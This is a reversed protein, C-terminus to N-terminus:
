IFNIVLKIIAAKKLIKLNSMNIMLKFYLHWGSHDINDGNNIHDEYYYKDKLEDLIIIYKGNLVKIATKITKLSIIIPMLCM